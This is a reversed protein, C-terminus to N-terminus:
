GDEALRRNFAHLWEYEEDSAWEATLDAALARDEPFNEDLYAKLEDLMARQEDSLPFGSTLGRV